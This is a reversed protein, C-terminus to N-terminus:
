GEAYYGRWLLNFAKVDDKVEDITCNAHTLKEKLNRKSKTMLARIEQELGALTKCHKEFKAKYTKDTGSPM